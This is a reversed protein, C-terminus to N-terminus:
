SMSDSSNYVLSGNMDTPNERTSRILIGDFTTDFQVDITQGPSGIKIIGVLSGWNTDYEFFTTSTAYGDIGIDISVSSGTNMPIALSVGRTETALM